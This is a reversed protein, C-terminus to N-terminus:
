SQGLLECTMLFSRPVLYRHYEDTPLDMGCRKSFEVVLPSSPSHKYFVFERILKNSSNSIQRLYGIGILSSPVRLVIRADEYNAHIALSHEPTPGLDFRIDDSETASFFEVLIDQYSLHNYVHTARDRGVVWLVKEIEGVRLLVKNNLEEISIREMVDRPHGYSSDVVIGDLIKIRRHLSRNFVIIAGDHDKFAGIEGTDAFMAGM